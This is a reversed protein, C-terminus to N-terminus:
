NKPTCTSGREFDPYKGRWEYLEDREEVSMKLLTEALLKCGPHGEKRAWDVCFQVESDDTNGDDLTIHLCCGTPHNEYLARVLMKVAAVTPKDMLAVIAVDTSVLADGKLERCEALFEIVGEDDCIGITDDRAWHESQILGMVGMWTLPGPGVKRCEDFSGPDIFERKTENIIYYYRGM